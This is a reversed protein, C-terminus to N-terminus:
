TSHWFHLLVVKGHYNALDLPRGEADVGRTQPAREFDGLIRPWWAAIKQEFNSGDGGVCGTLLLAFGLFMTYRM